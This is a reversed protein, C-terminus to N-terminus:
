RQHEQWGQQQAHHRPEWLNRPLNIHVGMGEGTAAPVLPPLRDPSIPRIINKCGNVHCVITLLFSGGAVPASTLKPVAPGQTDLCGPSKITTPPVVIGFMFRCVSWHLRQAMVSCMEERWQCEELQKLRKKRQGTHVFHLLEPSNSYISYYSGEPRSLILIIASAKCASLFLFDENCKSRCEEQIASM